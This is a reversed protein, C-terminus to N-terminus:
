CSGRSRLQQQLDTCMRNLETEALKDLDAEATITEGLLDQLLIIKGIVKGEERGEERSERRAGELGWQYELQARERRDYMNRDEEKQSITEIVKIAQEFEVGPLLSRLEESDYKDAFLLFFAWQEIKSAQTITAEDLNYKLLEVTHVEM